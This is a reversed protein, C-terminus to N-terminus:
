RRRIELLEVEIFLTSDAPTNPPYSSRRSLHPPVTLLRKEGVQMGRVGEDIGAIERNAGIVFSLPTGNSHTSFLKKGSLLSTTQHVRVRQGVRAIPGSGTILTRYRLGSDTTTSPARGFLCATLTCLAIAASLRRLIRM